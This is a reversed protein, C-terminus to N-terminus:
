FLKRKPLNREKKNEEVVYESIEKTERDYKIEIPNNISEYNYRNKKFVIYDKNNKEGVFVVHTSDKEINSADAFSHVDCDMTSNKSKVSSRNFQCINFMIIDNHLTLQRLNNTTIKTSEYSDHNNHEINHLTDIIVVLPEDLMDTIEKLTSIITNLNNEKLILLSTDNNELYKYYNEKNDDTVEKSKNYNQILRTYVDGDSNDLNFYVVNYNKLLKNAINIAFTTKGYGTEAGITVTDHNHIKALTSFYELGDLMLVNEDNAKKLESEIKERSLISDKFKKNNIKMM